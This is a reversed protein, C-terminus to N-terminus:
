STEQPEVIDVWLKAVVEELQELSGDNVIVTTAFKRREDNSAQAKIRLMVDTPDMGRLEVLRDIVVDPDAIVTWVVGSGGTWGTETMLAAEVVVVAEPDSESAALLRKAVEQRVLPHIIANLDELAEKDDFVISGLRPRDVTGDAALVEEGFREVIRDHGEEGPMYVEHAVRDADIVVAGHDALIAAVTSKGSGIGGTLGIMIKVDAIRTAARGAAVDPKAARSPYPM